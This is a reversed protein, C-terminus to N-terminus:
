VLNPHSISKLEAAGREFDNEFGPRSAIRDEILQVAVYHQSGSIRSLEDQAEYIPGLRGGGVRAGLRYDSVRDPPSDDDFTPTRRSTPEAPMEDAPIPKGQHMRWSLPQTQTPDFM